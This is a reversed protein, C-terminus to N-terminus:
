STGTYTQRVLPKEGRRRQIDVADDVWCVLSHRMTADTKSWIMWYPSSADVLTKGADLLTQRYGSALAVRKTTPDQALVGVTLPGVFVRGRYRARYRLAGGKPGLKPGFEVASGYDGRYSLVSAVEAPLATAGASMPDLTWTDTRFPSGHPEGNLHGELDYYKIQAANTGRNLSSSLYNAIDSGTSQAANFFNVLKTKIKDCTADQSEVLDQFWPFDMVVSDAFIGNAHPLVVTALIHAM